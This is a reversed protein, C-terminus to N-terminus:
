RHLHAVQAPSEYLEGDIGCTKAAELKDNDDDLYMINAPQLGPLENQLLAIVSKFYEPNSKKYGIDCTSFCGDFEGAFTNQLMYATRYKEQETAIYCKVGDARLQRISQILPENRNDESKFWYEMLEEPTGNWQWIEPHTKIHERLDKKGTVFDRWETTFFDFLPASDIAYKQAYMVSFPQERFTLVGDMDLLIVKQM